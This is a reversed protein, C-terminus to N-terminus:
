QGDVFYFQPMKETKTKYNEVFHPVNGVQLRKRNLEDRDADAFVFAMAIPKGEEINQRLGDALTFPLFFEGCYGEATTKVSIQMSSVGSIFKDNTRTKGMAYYGAWTPGFAIQLVDGDNRYLQMDANPMDTIASMFIEVCDGNWFDLVSSFDLTDDKVDFGFYIGEDTWAIRAFKVDFVDKYESPAIEDGTALSSGDMEIVTGKDQWDSLDGDVTIAGNQLKSVEVQPVVGDYEKYKLNYNDTLTITKTDTTGAINIGAFTDSGLTNYNYNNKLEIDNVNELEVACETMESSSTRGANYFLNSEIVTDPAGVGRLSIGANGTNSIFNNSIRIGSITDSPAVLGGEAIAFVAVSGRLANYLLYGNNILKNNRVTMDSPMTAENFVDLSSHIMIAGQGVNRFTNNEIVSRPIQVLIGRNRKNQVINDSFTFAPVASVNTVVCKTWDVDGKIREKVTVVYTSGVAEASVVTFSGRESFDTQSYVKLTEGEKPLPIKGTKQAITLTRSVSDASNLSYYYGSKINLADDHTNEILCNTIQVTGTCSAIHYGDATATMIRDDKLCVDFRNAYFNETDSVTIAMGPCTYVASNEVYVDKCGSFNMGNKGYMAFGLAVIDGNRPKVFSDRYGEKFQVTITDAGTFTVKEFMGEDSILFAGGEKPASTYKDYEIYSYLTGGLATNQSLAAFSEKQSEPVRMTVTLSEKDGSEIVGALAPLIKYDIRVNELQLGDCDTFSMGGMWASGTDIVLVTNEGGEICLGDFGDIAFTYTGDAISSAASEINLARDPLKIKVSTGASEQYAKAAELAAVFAETDGAGETKYTEMDFVAGAAFEADAPAPYKAQERGSKRVGVNSPDSLGYSDTLGEVTYADESLKNVYEAIEMKEPVEPDPDPTEPDTQTKCAAFSFVLAIALALSILMKMVNKKTRM